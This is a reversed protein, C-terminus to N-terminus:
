CCRVACCAPKFAVCPPQQVMKRSRVTVFKALFRDHVGAVSGAARRKRPARCKRRLDSLLYLFGLVARARPM